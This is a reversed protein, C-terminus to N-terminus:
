YSDVAAFTVAGTVTGSRITVRWCGAEPVEVYSPFQISGGSARPYRSSFRGPKDLRRGTILLTAGAGPRRTTWLVKPNIARRKVTTFIRAGVLQKRAWPTGGYFFLHAHFAGAPASALWPIPQLGRDAARDPAYHVHSVPCTAARAGAATSSRLGPALLLAGCILVAALRRRGTLVGWAVDSLM